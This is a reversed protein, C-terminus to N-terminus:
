SRSGSDAAPAEGAPKEAEAEAPAAEEGEALAVEVEEVKRPPMLHVVLEHEEYAPRVHPPFDIERIHIADHVHLGTVDIRIDSPISDVRSFVELDPKVVQLQGGESAGAPIGICHVPVKIRVEDELQVRVLDVHEVAEGFVDWDVSRLLATQEQEGLELRVLATHTKLVEQLDDANAVLNVNDQGRGYLSCPVKGARRYRRANASGLRDRKEVPLNLIKM